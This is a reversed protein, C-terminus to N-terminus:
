GCMYAKFGYYFIAQWAAFNMGFSLKARPIRGLGSESRHRGRKTKLIGLQGIDGANGSRQLRLALKPTRQVAFFRLCICNDRVKANRTRRV